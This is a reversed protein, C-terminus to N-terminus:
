ERQKGRRWIGTGVYCDLRSMPGTAGPGIRSIVVIRGRLVFRVYLLFNWLLLAVAAGLFAALLKLNQQVPSLLALSALGMTFALPLAIFKSITM